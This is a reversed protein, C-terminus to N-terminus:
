RYHLYDRSRYEPSDLFGSIVNQLSTHALAESWGSLGVPDPDRQLVAFYLMYVIARNRDPLAHKNERVDGSGPMRQPIDSKGWEALTPGRGRGDLYAWLRPLSSHEFETSTLLDVFFGAPSQTGQELANTWKALEADTPNRGLITKFHNRIWFQTQPEWRATGLGFDDKASCLIFGDLNHCRGSGSSTIRTAIAPTVVYVSASSLPRQTLTSISEGCLFGQDIPRGSYYSNTRMKGSAALLGFTEFGWRGGPSVSPDCQWPPMVILNDYTSGLKSWIPSKLPTEYTQNIQTHLWRRFPTLDAVQVALAVGVLVTAWRRRLLLFPAALVAMLLAYYPTWFLRGSCRLISLYPSLKQNPDVDVLLKSGVTIETSLAMLTLFLCCISLSIAPRWQFRPIKSVQLLLILAVVIALFMVGAGLYNYGEYQGDTFHKLPHSLLSGYGYPDFPALLNLSYYRYGVGAYRQGETGFFGFVYAATLATIGLASLVGATRLLTLRKRWLLGIVGATLVLLVQFALYPNIAVSVGALILAMTVFRRTSLPSERHALCFVFLAATFLWHNSIAYHAALRLNMPPSVLFYLSPLVVAFPNPGLLLRFLRLAFFFQLSCALIAELGLYQFPEPLLLSLPKLLVALLPNVDMLSISDGIPYGIRDTYTIPWHFHPDQRFLAWGIYYTATDGHLWRINHPNLVHPGLVYLAYLFGVIGAIALNFWLSDPWQKGLVRRFAALRILNRQDGSVSVTISAECNEMLPAM